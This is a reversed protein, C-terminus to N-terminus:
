IKNTRLLNILRYYYDPYDTLVRMELSHMLFLEEKNPAGSPHIYKIKEPVGSYDAFDCLLNEPREKFYTINKKQEEALAFFLFQEFIINSLRTDVKDLHATNRDVFEFVKRTYERIFDVDNGGLIGANIAIISGNKELSDLLCEPYFEFHRLMDYFIGFYTKHMAEGEERQQCLLSAKILEEDFGGWILVDGDAHIFPGDQISYTYIKGIAFLGPNYHNLDDLLIRYHTYPLGLKDILLEYGHKDTVLEVEDYYKRFQLCSLIWSLYNYKKDSWGCKDADGKKEGPKSWLSQVIKM